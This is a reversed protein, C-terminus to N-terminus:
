LATPATSADDSSVVLWDSGKELIYVSCLLQGGGANTGDAGCTVLVESPFSHNPPTSPTLTM